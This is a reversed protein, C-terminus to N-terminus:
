AGQEGNTNDGTTDGSTNDGTTDGTTDGTDDEVVEVLNDENVFPEYSEDRWMGGDRSTDKTFASNMLETLESSSLAAVATNLAGVDSQLTNIKTDRKSNATNITSISSEIGTIKTAQASSASSLQATTDNLTGVDSQLTNIKTAQQSSASSLQATTDNLTAISSEQAAKANEIAEIKAAQEASDRVLQATTSSLTAIPGAPVSPDYALNDENVFPEYSEDRWMGGDRVADKVFKENMMTSLESSTIPAITTNITGVGGELATIKTGQENNVSTITSISSEIGTIKTAQQSSASSLQATTNNLTAISNETATKASEIAAIKTDVNEFKSNTSDRLTDISDTIEANGTGVSAQINALTQRIDAHSNAAVNHSAIQNPDYRTFLSSAKSMVNRMSAMLENHDQVEQYSLNDTAM